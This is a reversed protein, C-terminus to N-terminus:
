VRQFLFELLEFARLGLFLNSLLEFPETVNRLLEKRVVFSCWLVRLRTAYRLCETQRIAPKYGAFDCVFRVCEFEGISPRSCTPSVASQLDASRDKPILAARIVKMTDM